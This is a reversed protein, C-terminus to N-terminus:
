GARAARIRFRTALDPAASKGDPFESPVGSDLLRGSIM